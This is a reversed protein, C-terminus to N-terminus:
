CRRLAWCSSGPAGSERLFFKGRDTRIFPSKVGHTRIHVSLKSSMTRDLTKGALKDSLMKQDLAYDILEMPSMPCLEREFVQYAIRLFESDM